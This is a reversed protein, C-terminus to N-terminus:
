ATAPPARSSYATTTRTIISRDDAGIDLLKSRTPLVVLAYSVDLAVVFQAAHILACVARCLTSHPDDPSAPQDGTEAHAICLAVLSQAAPISPLGTAPLLAQFLLGFSVFWAVM